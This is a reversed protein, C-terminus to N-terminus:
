QPPMQTDSDYTCLDGKFPPAIVVPTVKAASHRRIATQQSIARAPPPAFIANLSYPITTGLTRTNKLSLSLFPSFFCKCDNFRLILIWLASCLGLILDGM